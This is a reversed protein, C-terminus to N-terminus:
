RERVDEVGEVSCNVDASGIKWGVVGDGCLEPGSM